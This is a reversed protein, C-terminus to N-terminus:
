EGAMINLERLGKILNVLAEAEMQGRSEVTFSGVHPTVVTKDSTALPGINPEEEFVDLAAMDIQEDKLAKELAEECIIGGRSANVICAGKKMRLFESEGFMKHTSPNLPTHITIIDSKVLIDDFSVLEINQDLKSIVPDFGIVNYGVSSLLKSVQSGIRGLGVVGVTLGEFLNAKQRTWEKSKILRDMSSIRKTLNIIHAFSLEAVSQAPADPTNFVKIKLENAADIDVNDMGVGCRSIIKLSKAGRLVKETLPELGAVLGYFNENELLELIQDETMRKKFPNLVVEFGAQKLTEIEQYADVDFSSTSILVKKNVEKM